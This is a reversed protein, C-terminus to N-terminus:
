KVLFGLDALKGNQTVKVKGSADPRGLMQLSRALASQRGERANLTANLKYQGDAQILLEGSLELPGGGDGLTAKVGDDTTSLRASLDGLALRQPFQTAAGYWGLTGAAKVPVGDKIKLADLNARLEGELQLAPIGLARILAASDMRAQVDEVYTAGGIGRGIVAQVRDQDRRFAVAAEASGLLLAAPKVRWTVDSVRQNAFVAASAEGNWLTGSVGYLKVPVSAGLQHQVLAYGRDAPFTLLLFAVYLGAAALAYRVGRKM